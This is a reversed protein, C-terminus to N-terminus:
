IQSKFSKRFKFFSVILYGIAIGEVIVSIFQSTSLGFIFGRISDGRLYEDTFRIVPYIALYIWILKGYLFSEKKLRGLLIWLVLFIVINLASELLQVPFRSVNNVEPSIRNGHAIFGFESEIGYCCGGLFCGIRAIAHFLPIVLALVDLYIQKDLRKIQIVALGTALGGFLGGYFVAGGFVRIISSGWEKFNRAEFIYRIFQWNAIGYLLHSGLLVGFTVLLLFVVADNDDLDRKRICLCFVFGSLLGGLIALVAYTSISIGSIMIYPLM